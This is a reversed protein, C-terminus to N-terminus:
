RDCLANCGGRKGFVQAAVTWAHNKLGEELDDMIASVERIEDAASYRLTERVAEIVEGYSDYIQETLFIEQTM